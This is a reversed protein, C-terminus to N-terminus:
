SYDEKTSQGAQRRRALLAILALVPLGILVWGRQSKSGVRSYFDITLTKQLTDREQKEIAIQESGALTAALYGSKFPAYANEYRLQHAGATIQPLAARFFLRQGLERKEARVTEVSISKGDLSLHLAAGVNKPYGEKQVERKFAADVQEGPILDLEVTVADGTIGVYSAQALEDIPHAYVLAPSLVTALTLSLLCFSRAM